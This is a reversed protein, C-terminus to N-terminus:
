MSKAMRMILRDPIAILKYRSYYFLKDEQRCEVNAIYARNASERNFSIHYDIPKDLSLSIREGPIEIKLWQYFPSVQDPNKSKDLLLNIESEVEDLPSAIAKFLAQSAYTITFLLDLWEKSIDHLLSKFLSLQESTVPLGRNHSQTSTLTPHDNFSISSRNEGVRFCDKSNIASLFWTGTEKATDVLLEVQEGASILSGLFIEITNSKVMTTCSSLLKSSLYSFLYMGPVVVEKKHFSMYEPSHVINFDMTAKCFAIIDANSFSTTIKM